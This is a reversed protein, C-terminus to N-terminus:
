RLGFSEQWTAYVYLDTWLNPWIWWITADLIQPGCIPRAMRGCLLNTDAAHKCIM